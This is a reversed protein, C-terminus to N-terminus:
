FAERGANKQFNDELHCGPLRIDSHSYLTLESCFVKHYMWQQKQIESVHKCLIESCLM